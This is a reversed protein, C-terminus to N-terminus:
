QLMKVVRLYFVGCYSRSTCLCASYHGGLHARIIADWVSDRCRAIRNRSEQVESYYGVKEMNIHRIGCLRGHQGGSYDVRFSLSSWGGYEMGTSNNWLTAKIKWHNYWSTRTLTEVGAMGTATKCTWWSSTWTSKRLKCFSLYRLVTSVSMCYLTYLTYTCLM